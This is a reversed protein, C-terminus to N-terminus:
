QDEFPPRLGSGDQLDEGEGFDTLHDCLIGVLLIPGVFAADILLTEVM